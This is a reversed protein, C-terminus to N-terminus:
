SITALCISTKRIRPMLRRATPIITTCRAASRLAKKYNHGYCLFYWDQAKTTDPREKLWPWPSNDFLYSRSDDILTWGNRSLLGDEMPMSKGDKMNGNYMDLSYYTGKLNANDKMGPKWTFPKAGATRIFSQQVFKKTPTISLNSATFPGKSKLYTITMADTRISVKKASNYVKSAVPAYQRIVAIQSRDDVFKGEPSYELRAAGDDILTIRVNDDQYVINKATQPQASLCFALSPIIALATKLYFAPKMYFTNFVTKYPSDTNVLLADERILM